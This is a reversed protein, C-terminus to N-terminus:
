IGLRLAKAYERIWVVNAFHQKNLTLSDTMYKLSAAVSAVYLGGLVSLVLMVIWRSRLVPDLADKHIRRELMIPEACLILIVNLTILAVLQSPRRSVFRPAVNELRDFLAHVLQAGERDVRDTVTGHSEEPREYYSSM